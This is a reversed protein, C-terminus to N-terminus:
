NPSPIKIDRGFYQAPHRSFNFYFNHTFNFLSSPQCNRSLEPHQHSAFLIQRTANVLLWLEQALSFAALFFHLRELVLQWLYLTCEFDDTIYDLICLPDQKLIALTSRSLM